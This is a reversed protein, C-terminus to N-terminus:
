GVPGLSVWAVRRDDLEAWEALLTSKGYGAPATVGVVRCGRARAAEILGARSVSGARRHPVSLKAELLVAELEALSPGARASDDTM